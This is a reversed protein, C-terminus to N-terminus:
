PRPRSKSKRSSPLEGYKVITLKVIDFGRDVHRRNLYAYAIPEAGEYLYTFEYYLVDEKFRQLAVIRGLSDYSYTGKDQIVMGANSYFSTGAIRNLSDYSWANVVRIGGAMYEERYELPRKKADFKMITEKYSKGEDNLSFQKYMNENLQLYRFEEVSIITQVGIRFARHSMGGNTEKAHIRRTMFGDVNYEYYWTSYYDGDCMRRSALRSLSDYYYYVFLTDYIYTPKIETRPKAVVRGKRYVAPHEIVTNTQGSVRNRWYWQLRGLTDFQFHERLGKDVIVEGDQKNQIKTSISFIKYKRISDADFQVTVGFPDQEIPRFLQASIQKSFCLVVVCWLIPFLKPSYTNTNKM